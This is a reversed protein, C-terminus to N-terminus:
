RMGCAFGEVGTEAWDARGEFFRSLREAVREAAPGAAGQPGEQTLLFLPGLDNATIVLVRILM